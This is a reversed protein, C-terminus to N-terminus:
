TARVADCYAFLLKIQHFVDDLADHHTGTRPVNVDIPGGKAIRLGHEFSRIDTILKYDFVQDLMADRLHSNIFQDDFKGRSWMRVGHAPGTRDCGMWDRFEKLVTAPDRMRSHIKNLTDARGQDGLWWNRTGENWYRRPMPFLCQDFVPSTIDIKRQSLNFKVAALQIMPTLDPETGGTEIDVMVDPFFETTM